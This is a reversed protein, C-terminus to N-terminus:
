LNYWILRNISLIGIPIQYPCTNWIVRNESKDKTIAMLLSNSITQPGRLQIYHRQCKSLEM